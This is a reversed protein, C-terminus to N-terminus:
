NKQAFTSIHKRLVFMELNSNFCRKTYKIYKKRSEKKFDITKIILRTFLVHITITYVRKIHEKIYQLGDAIGPGTGSSSTVGAVSDIPENLSIHNTKLTIKKVDINKIENSLYAHFQQQLHSPTM